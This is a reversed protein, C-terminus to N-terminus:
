EMVGARSAFLKGALRKIQVIAEQGNCAIKLSRPDDPRGATTVGVVFGCVECTVVYLGCRRAPYPLDTSCTRAAGLSMDVDKGDPYSPDPACKPERGKDIWEIKLAPEARKNWPTFGMLRAMTPWTGDFTLARDDLTVMAAPKETPFRVQDIWDAPDLAYRRLWKQMAEIGGTQHSRSSFICVDFHQLAEQLFGLAGEVPPDSVVDAGQWGSSYSHIVGDFDLCLIPRKM